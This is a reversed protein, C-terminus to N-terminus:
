PRRLFFRYKGAQGIYFLSTEKNTAKYINLKDQKILLVTKFCIWLKERAVKPSYSIKEGAMYKSLIEALVGFSVAFVLTMLLNEFYASVAWFAAFLATFLQWPQLGGMEEMKPDVQM